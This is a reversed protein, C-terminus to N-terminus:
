NKNDVLIKFEVRRNKARGEKTDNSKIPKYEGYGTCAIYNPNFNHYAILWEGVVIARASSLYWNSPYQSTNIPRNDTHGEVNLMYKTYGKDIIVDKIALLVREGYPKITAEGSDFLLEGAIRLTVYNSNYLILVESEIGQQLLYKEINIAIEKTESIDETTSDDQSYEYIVKKEAQADTITQIDIKNIQNNNYNILAEGSLSKGGQMIGFRKGFSEVVVKYKTADVSTMSFLLIFFCLLLTVLDGYTGMWGPLGTKEEKKKRKSM